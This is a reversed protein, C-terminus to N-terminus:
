KRCCEPPAAGLSRSEPEATGTTISSTANVQQKDRSGSRPASRDCDSGTSSCQLAPWDPSLRLVAQSLKSRRQRTPGCARRTRSSLEALCWLGAMRSYILSKNPIRAKGVFFETLGPNAAIVVQGRVPTLGPDPVLERAGIGACNVVVPAASVSDADSLSRLRPGLRLQGGERLLLTLLYDLYASMMVVPASYRWGAGFGAPLDAPECKMTPGAGRTFGPPDPAAADLMAVLGPLECIGAEPEAALARFRRLTLEAWSTVHEASGVLHPGWLAGAAASTTLHPPEAAYVDVSLGAELLVIATSLGSVGAGIVLVEPTRGTV